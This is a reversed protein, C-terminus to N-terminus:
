HRILTANVILQFWKGDSDRWITGMKENVEPAVVAVADRVSYPNVDEELSVAFYSPFAFEWGYWEISWLPKIAAITAAEHDASLRFKMLM